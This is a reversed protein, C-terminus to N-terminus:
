ELDLRQVMIRQKSTNAVAISIKIFGLNSYISKDAFSLLGVRVLGDHYIEAKDIFNAAKWRQSDNSVVQWAQGM